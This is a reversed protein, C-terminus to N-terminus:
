LPLYMAKAWGMKLQSSGIRHLPFNTFRSAGIFIEEVEPFVGVGFERNELLGFRFVSLELLIGRELMSVM